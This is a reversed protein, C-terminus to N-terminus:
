GSALGILFGGIFGGSVYLNDQAYVKIKEAWSTVSRGGVQTQVAMTAAERQVRDWQRQTDRKLRRWDVKVYGARAALQMVLLGGGLAAAATSSVRKFIYGTVVGPVAGVAIQVGHSQRSLTALAQEDICAPLHGEDPNDESMDRLLLQLVSSQLSASPWTLRSLVALAFSRHENTCTRYMNM